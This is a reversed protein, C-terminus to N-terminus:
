PTQDPWTITVTATSAADAVARHLTDFDEESLNAAEDQIFEGICGYEDTTNQLGNLLLDEALRQVTATDPTYPM